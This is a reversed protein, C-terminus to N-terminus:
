TELNWTKIPKYFIGHFSIFLSFRNVSWSIPCSLKDFADNLHCRKSLTLHASFDRAGLYAALENLAKPTKDPRLVWADARNFYELQNLCFDVIPYRHAGNDGQQILHLIDSSCQNPFHALTVHMNSMPELHLASFGMQLAQEFIQNELSEDDIGLAFFCHHKPEDQWSWAMEVLLKLAEFIAQEQIDERSGRCHFSLVKGLESPAAYAIYIRGIDDGSPGSYGTIALRACNPDLGDLMAKACVASVATDKSLIAISVGLIEQKASDTYTVVSYKLWASSGPIKTIQYAIGGGTCSEALAIQWQRPEYLAGLYAALSAIKEQRNM